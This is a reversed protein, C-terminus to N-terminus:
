LVRCTVAVRGEGTSGGSPMADRQDDIDEIRVLYSQAAKHDTLTVPAKAAKAAWLSSSISEGTRQVNNPHDFSDEDDLRLILSFFEEDEATWATAVVGKVTPTNVGTRSSLTVRVQLTQFTPTIDAASIGFVHKSGSSSSGVESWTGDQDIQVEVKLSTATPMEDTLVTIERLEKLVGPLDYDYISSTYTNGDTVSSQRYTSVSGAVYTGEDSYLAFLHGRVVALARANGPTTPSLEYEHFLGGSRLSYRWIHAGQLVWLDNLYPQIYVPAEAIDDRFEGIREAVNGNPPIAWLASVATEGAEALAQGTLFTYGQSYAIATLRTGVDMNAVERSVLTTGSSDVEYVVAYVDSYNVFFRAGTPTGCMQQRLTTEATPKLTGVTVTATQTAPAGSDLPYTAVVVGATTDQALVFLRGQAVAIACANSIAATHTADATFNFRLIDGGSTLAYEFQDTHAMAYITEDTTTSANLAEGAEWVESVFSYRWSQSATAARHGTLWVGGDQGLEMMDFTFNAATAVTQVIKDVYPRQNGADYTVKYRYNTAAAGTFTQSVVKATTTSTVQVDRSRVSAQTTENFATVTVTTPTDAHSYTVTELIVPSAADSTEGDFRVGYTRGAVPTFVISDTRSSTSDGILLRSAVTKINNSNTRDKISMRALWQTHATAMKFTLAVEVPVGATLGTFNASQVQAGKYLKITTGVDTTPGRLEVLASGNITTLQQAEKYLHYEVQVAVAGPAHNATEAVTTLSNLRTDTGSDTITGSEATLDSGETTTATSTAQPQQVLISKNLEFQGPTRFNLGESEFFRTASRDDSGNLVTQGEGSFNTMEWRLLEPYFNQSGPRGTVDTRGSFPSRSWRRFPPRGLIEPARHDLRYEVGALTIDPRTAPM